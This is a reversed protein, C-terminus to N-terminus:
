CCHRAQRIVKKEATHLKILNSLAWVPHAGICADATSSGCATNLMDADAEHGPQEPNLLLQRGTSHPISAMCFSGEATSSPPTM